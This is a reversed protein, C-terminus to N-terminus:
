RDMSVPPAIPGSRLSGAWAPGEWHSVMLGSRRGPRAASGAGGMHDALRVAGPNPRAGRYLGANTVSHQRDQDGM